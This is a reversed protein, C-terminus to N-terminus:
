AGCEKCGACGRLADAYQDDTLNLNAAHKKQEDTLVVVARKKKPRGLIKRVYEAKISKIKGGDWKVSAMEMVGGLNRTTYFCQLIGANNTRIDYVRQGPLPM